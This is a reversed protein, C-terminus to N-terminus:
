PVVDAIISLDYQSTNSADAPASFNADVSVNVTNDGITLPIESGTNISIASTSDINYIVNNSTNDFTVTAGTFTTATPPNFTALALTGGGSNCTVTYLGPIGAGEETTLTRYQSGAEYDLSGDTATFNCESALDATFDMRTDGTVAIQGWARDAISVSCIAVLISLLSFRTLLKM